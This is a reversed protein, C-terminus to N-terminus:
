LASIIAKVKETDIKKKDGKMTLTLNDPTFIVRAARLLHSPTIRRYAEARDESGSYGLDMIYNDYAFTFNLERPDDLLMSANDVYGAKMCGDEPLEVTKLECLVDTVVELAEYIKGSKLEFSFSFSGINKYREVSGGLDYCIGRKESLEVFLKSNYGGLLLDYLLDIEPVSLSSMDLDFNFRIKTFDANKIYVGGRRKGFDSPALATNSRPKEEYLTCKGLLKCLLSIEEEKVNGTVYVFANDPTFCSRRFKELRRVSLVGIDSALGTIPYALPTDAWVKGQSFSALSTRDGGERIEARIRKREAELEGVSLIIPSFLAAIIEAAVAFNKSSGCIYFQVMESFTSANFELGYKDLLPYLAGNMLRNVNRIAVHEYFHSIGREGDKEYLCGARLYLSIYFSHTNEGSIYCIPLGNEAIIRKEM